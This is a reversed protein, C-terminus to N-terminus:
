KVKVNVCIPHHYSKVFCKYLVHGSAEFNELKVYAHDITNGKVGSTTQCQIIQRYASNPLLDCTCNMDGMIIVNPSNAHEETLQM